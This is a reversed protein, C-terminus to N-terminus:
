GRPAHKDVDERSNGMLERVQRATPDEAGSRNASGPSGAPAGPGGAIQPRAAVFERFEALGGQKRCQAEYYAREAPAIKGDKLATDLAAEIEASEEARKRGALEAEAESARNLAQEYTARPVFKALPPNEARNLAEAIEGALKRCAAEVAAFDAGEPNELELAAAIKKLQEKDMSGGSGARNLATLSLNPDNTLAVSVIRAIQGDEAHEVVPSVYIYEKSEVSWNGRDTWEVRAWIGDPRSQMETIWGAAPAEEGKRGKLITAHEWDVVRKRPKGDAGELSARIVAEADALEFERGDDGTIRPGAPLVHIWEPAGAPCACRMAAIGCAAAASSNLAISAGAARIAIVATRADPSAPAM